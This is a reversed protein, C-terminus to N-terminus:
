YKVLTIKKGVLINQDDRSLSDSWGILYKSINGIELTEIRRHTIAMIEDPFKEMASAKKKQQKKKTNFPAMYLDLAGFLHLYENVIM